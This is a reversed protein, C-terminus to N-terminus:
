SASDHYHSHEHHSRRHDHGHDCGCPPDDDDDGSDGNGDGGDGDDNGDDDDDACRESGCLREYELLVEEVTKTRLTECYETRSRKQCDKIAKCGTLVSVADSAKTWCTLARCLCDLYAQTDDFGNWIWKTSLHFQAVLAAAYLKKLDMTAQDGALGTTVADIEAKADAVRKTLEAPEGVLKTFCDKERDRRAEYEAIRSVLEDYDDPCTKDFECPSTSCCGSGYGCKELRHCIHRFARDLCDVVDDQKIQCRIREVLQKAQHRLDQVELAAKARAARYDSRAKAYDESAQKLIPQTQENYKAQAAIGEAQCKLQDILDPDCDPNEPPEHCGCGDHDHDDHRGADNEPSM